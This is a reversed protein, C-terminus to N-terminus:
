LVSMRRSLSKKISLQLGIYERPPTFMKFFIHQNYKKEKKLTKGMQNEKALNKHSLGLTSM